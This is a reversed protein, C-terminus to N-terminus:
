EEIAHGLWRVINLLLKQNDTSIPASLGMTARGTNGQRQSTFMAAEGFIVVRGKEHEIAVGQPLGQADEAKTGDGFEWATEPSLIVSPRNLKLIVQGNEGIRFVQGTFTAVQNVQESENRGETIPHSEIDDDERKFVIPAGIVEDPKDPVREFAFGNIMEVQFRSALAEAAGPFPMHDAILFLSGGEQIWQELSDIEEDTFASPTPLKWSGQNDDHLANAIVLIDISALSEPTLSEKNERVRFGDAKLVSAFPAYRGSMTHFNGHAEDIAVVPGSEPEFRPNEVVARFETDGQQQGIANPTLCLIGFLAGVVVFLYRTMKPSGLTEFQSVM